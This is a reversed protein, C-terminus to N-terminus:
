GAPAMSCTFSLRTAVKGDCRVIATMYYATSVIEDIKVTIEVSDGPKVMKKFKIDNMRTLVPVMGAEAKMIGSLLVAGAQAGCECLIVGPVIPSEPYHGQFFFEDPGFTKKCVITQDEQSVIEDLLLMPPRHPIADLITQLTPHPM